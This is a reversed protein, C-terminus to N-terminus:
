RGLLALAEERRQEADAQEAQIKKQDLSTIVTQGRDRLFKAMFNIGAAINSNICPESGTCTTGSRYLKNAEALVVGKKDIAHARQYLDGFEADLASLQYSRCIAQETDTRAKACDFNPVPVRGSDIGNAIMQMRRTRADAREFLSTTVGRDSFALRIADQRGLRAVTGDGTEQAFDEDCWSVFQGAPGEVPCSIQQKLQSVAIKDCTARLGSLRPDDPPVVSSILQQLSAGQRSLGLNICSMQDPPLKAWETRLSQQIAQGILGGFLNIIARQDQAAVPTSTIAGLVAALLVILSTRSPAVALMHPGSM